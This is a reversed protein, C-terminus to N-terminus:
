QIVLAAGRDIEIRRIKEPLDFPQDIDLGIGGADEQGPM